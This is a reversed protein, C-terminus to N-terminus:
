FKNVSLYKMCIHGVILQMDESIQMDNINFHIPIIEPLSPYLYAAYIFPIGILLLVYILAM